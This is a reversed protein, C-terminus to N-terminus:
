KTFAVTRHFVANLHLNKAIEFEAFDTPNLLYRGYM